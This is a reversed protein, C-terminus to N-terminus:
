VFEEITFGGSYLADYPYSLGSLEKLGGLFGLRQAPQVSNADPLYLVEGTTGLRRQMEWVRKFDENTIWDLGFNVFRRRRKVDFTATGNRTRNVTSPDIWGTQLGYSANYTPVLGGGVFARGFQLYGDTNTTDDLEVTLYRANYYASLPWVAMWPHRIYQDDAVGEWWNNAEWELMESDFSMPWCGQWGSTYIDTAGATTGLSIRMLANLSFNHNILAIARLARVAGLDAYFKTHALAASASRAVEGYRRTKLKDLTIVWSGGTLTCDDIRNPWGLFINAM